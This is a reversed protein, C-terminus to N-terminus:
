RPIGSCGGHQPATRAGPLLREADAPMASRLDVEAYVSRQLLHVSLVIRANGRSEVFLGEVGALPGNLVKVKQGSVLYDCNWLPVGSQVATRLANIEDDAIHCPTPGFGVIRLVGPTNLVPVRDNFGFRCFVYRPFLPFDITKWRDSWKQRRVTIPMFEEYGKTRLLSSVSKEFRPKVMIAFWRTTCDVM